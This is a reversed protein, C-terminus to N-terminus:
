SSFISGPIHGRGGSASRVGGLWMALDEPTDVDFAIHANFHVTPVFGLRLVETCHKAFSGEGFQFRLAAGRPVLMANTGRWHRDPCIVIGGHSARTDAIERIDTPRVLPEDCAIVVVDQAGLGRLAAIGEEAAPNLGRGATQRIGRVGCRSALRLVDECESVVATRERGPFRAATAMMSRLLRENLDRRAGDELVGLLRSKGAALSKAPVLLWPRM